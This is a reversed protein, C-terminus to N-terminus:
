LSNYRIIWTWLDSEHKDPTSEFVRLKNDWSLVIILIKDININMCEKVMISYATAQEYYHSDKVKGPTKPNRSNKFDIIVKEGTKLVAVLDVTGAVELEDSYLKVESGHVEEINEDLWKKLVHFLDMPNKEFKDMEEKTRLFIQNNLHLEALNHLETGVKMSSESYEKCWDVAESKSIGQKRMVSQIWHEYWDQSEGPEVLKFITTISPYLKGNETRYFHGEDTHEAKAFPRKINYKVHKFV